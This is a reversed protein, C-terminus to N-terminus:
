NVHPAHVVLVSCNAHTIVRRSVSGSLLRECGTQGRTGMVILDAGHDKATHLIESAAKGNAVMWGTAHGCARLRGATREAIEVHHGREASAAAVSVVDVSVADLVPWRVLCNIAQAAADSGDDAALV